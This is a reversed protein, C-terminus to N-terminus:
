SETSTITATSAAAPSANFSSLWALLSQSREQFDALFEKPISQAQPLDVKLSDRHVGDVQFEYHLHPGSALGTMGVYGIIQGQKVHAGVRTNKNFKSMHGYLTRYRQGHQIIVANGYGGKRGAFVIKGDGAAKIPTGTPAAYDTGKHARITSQLVPHKRSTSFRSSIRTFDIPNRLFEKRMSRGEPTYYGTGGNADTYRIATLERGQNFFKATLIRGTGIREGDLYIEDYILSFRDGERIDQAFDIDWGFINALEYLTQEPIGAKIGDGLLSNEIVAAAFRPRHDASREILEYQMEGEDNRVFSHQALPSIDLQLQQVRNNDTRAWRITQGPLIRLAGKPAATVVDVLSSASLQHRNFIVSLSDGARVKDTEWQIPISPILSVDLDDPAASQDDIALIFNDEVQTIVSPEPWLIVLLLGICLLAAGIVHPIPFFKLRGIEAM